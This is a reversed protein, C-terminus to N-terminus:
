QYNSVLSKLLYFAEKLLEDGDEVYILESQVKKAERSFDAVADVRNHIRSSNSINNKSFYQSDRVFEVIIDASLERWVSTSKTVIPKEVTEEGEVPTDITETDQKLNHVICYYNLIKFVQYLALRSM